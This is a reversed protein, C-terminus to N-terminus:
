EICQMLDDLFLESAESISLPEDPSSYAAVVEWQDSYYILEDNLADIIADGIDEDATESDVREFVNYAINALNGCGFKELISEKKVRSRVFSKNEM